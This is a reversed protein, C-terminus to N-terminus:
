IRLIHYNQLTVPLENICKFMFYTTAAVLCTYIVKEMLNHHNPQILLVERNARRQRQLTGTAGIEKKEDKQTFTSALTKLM